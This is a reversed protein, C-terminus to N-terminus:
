MELTSFPTRVWISRPITAPYGTTSRRTVSKSPLACETSEDSAANWVAPEIAILSAASFPSM